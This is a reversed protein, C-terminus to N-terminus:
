LFFNLMSNVLLSFIIYAGCKKCVELSLRFSLVFGRLM